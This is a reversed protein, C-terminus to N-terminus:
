LNLTMIYITETFITKFTSILDKNKLLKLSKDSIHDKLLLFIFQKRNYSLKIRSLVHSMLQDLTLEINNFIYDNYKLIKAQFLNIKETGLRNEVEPLCTIHINFIFYEAVYKTISM